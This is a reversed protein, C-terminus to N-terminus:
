MRFKNDDSGWLLRVVWRSVVMKPGRNNQVDFNETPEAAATPVVASFTSKKLTSFAAWAM